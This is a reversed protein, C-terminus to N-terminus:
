VENPVGRNTCPPQSQDGSARAGSPADSEGAAQSVEKLSELLVLTADDLVGEVRSMVETMHAREAESTIALHNLISALRLMSAEAPRIAEALFRGRSIGSYDALVTIADYM